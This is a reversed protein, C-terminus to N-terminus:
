AEIVHNDTLFRESIILFVPNPWTVSTTCWIGSYLISWHCNKGKGTWICLELYFSSTSFDTHQLHFSFNKSNWTFTIPKNIQNYCYPTFSRIWKFICIHLLLFSWNSAKIKDKDTSFKISLVSRLALDSISQFFYQCHPKMFDCTLEINIDLAKLFSHLDMQINLKNVIVWDNYFYM